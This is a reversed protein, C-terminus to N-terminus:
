HRCGTLSCFNPCFSLFQTAAGIKIVLYDSRTRKKLNRYDRPHKHNDGAQIQFSYKPGTNTGFRWGLFPSVPAPKKDDGLGPGGVDIIRNSPSGVAPWPLPAAIVRSGTNTDSTLLLASNESSLQGEVCTLTMNAAHKQNTFGACHPGPCWVGDKGKDAPESCTYNVSRSTEGTPYYGNVCEMECSDEFRRFEDNLTKETQQTPKFNHASQCRPAGTAPHEGYTKDEKLDILPKPGYADQESGKTYEPRVLPPCIVAECKLGVDCPDKECDGDKCHCVDDKGYRWWGHKKFKLDGHPFQGDAVAVCTYDQILATAPTSKTFGTKCNVRCTHMYESGHQTSTECSSWTSKNAHAWNDRGDSIATLPDELCHIIDCRLFGSPAVSFGHHTADPGAPSEPEPAPEPEPLVPNFQDSYFCAPPKPELGLGLEPLKDYCCQLAKGLFSKTICQAETIDEDGGSCDVRARPLVKHCVEPEEFRTVVFNPAPCWWTGSRQFCYSPKDIIPSVASLTGNGEWQGAGADPYTEGSLHENIVYGRDSCSDVSRGVMWTHSDVRKLVYVGNRYVPWSNCTKFSTLAYLGNLLTQNSSFTTFSGSITFGVPFIGGEFCVRDMELQFARVSVMETPSCASTDLQLGCM